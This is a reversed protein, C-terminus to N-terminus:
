SNPFLIKYNLHIGFNRLGKVKFLVKHIVPTFEIPLGQTLNRRLYYFEYLLFLFIRVISRQLSLFFNAINPWSQINARSGTFFLRLSCTNLSLYLSNYTQTWSYAHYQYISASPTLTKPFEGAKLQERETETRACRDGGFVGEPSHYPLWKQSWARETSQLNQSEHVAM